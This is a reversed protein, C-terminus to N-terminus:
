FTESNIFLRAFLETVLMKQGNKRAGGVRGIYVEYIGNM